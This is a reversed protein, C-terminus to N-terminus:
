PRPRGGQVDMWSARSVASSPDNGTVIDLSSCRLRSPASLLSALRESGVEAWAVSKLEAWLVPEDFLNGEVRAELRKLAVRYAVLM